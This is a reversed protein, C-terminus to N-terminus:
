PRVEASALCTGVLGTTQTRHRWGNVNLLMRWAEFRTRPQRWGREHYGDLPPPERRCKHGFVDAGARARCRRRVNAYLPAQQVRNPVLGSAPARWEYFEYEANTSSFSGTGQAWRHKSKVDLLKDRNCVAVIVVRTSQGRCHANLPVQLKYNM